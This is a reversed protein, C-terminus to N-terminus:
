RRRAAGAGGACGPCDFHPSFKRSFNPSFNPSLNLSFKRGLKRSIKRGFERSFKRSFKCRLRPGPRKPRLVPLMQSLPWALAVVGLM